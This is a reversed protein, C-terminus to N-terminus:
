PHKTDKILQISACLEQFAVETGGRLAVAYFAGKHPFLMEQCFEGERTYTTLVADGDLFTTIKSNAGNGKMYDVYEELGAKVNGSYDKRSILIYETYNGKEFVWFDENSQTSDRIFKEPITVSINHFSVDGNFPMQTRPVCGGLLILISLILYILFVKRM